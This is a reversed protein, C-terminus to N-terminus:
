QKLNRGIQDAMFGQTYASNKFMVLLHELESTLQKELRDRTEQTVEGEGGIGGNAKVESELASMVLKITKSATLSVDDGPPTTKETEKKEKKGKGSSVSVSSSTKPVPQNVAKTKLTEGEQSVSSDVSTLPLQLILPALDPPHDKDILIEAELDVFRAERNVSLLFAELGEPTVAITADNSLPHFLIKSHSKFGVDFIMAVQRSTEQFLAFPTVSGLPVQLTAALAEEPAMRLGGKGAGIRASLVKLDIKTSALASILILRGKKDKLFLNKSLGGGVHSVYKEQEEVTFVPPHEFLEYEVKVEKLHNLLKTKNEQAAEMVRPATHGPM